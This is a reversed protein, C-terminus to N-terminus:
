GKIMEKRARTRNIKELKNILLSRMLKMFKKKELVRYIHIATIKGRFVEEAFYRL